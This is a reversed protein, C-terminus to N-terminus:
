NSTASGAGAGIETAQLTETEVQLQLFGASGSSSIRLTVREKSNGLLTVTTGSVSANSWPVIMSSRQQVRYTKGGVFYEAGSMVGGTPREYSYIMEVQSSSQSGSSLNAVSFAGYSTSTVRELTPNATQVAKVLDAATVVAGVTARLVEGGDQAVRETEAWYGSQNFALKYDTGLTIGNNAWILDFTQTSGYVPGTYTGVFMLNLIGNLTVAGSGVFIQDYLTETTGALDMTLNTLALDGAEYFYDGVVEDPDPGNGAQGVDNRGGFIVGQVGVALSSYGGGSVNYVNTVIPSPTPGYVAPSSSPSAYGLLLEGYANYGWSRLQGAGDIAFSSDTGASILRIGSLGPIPIPLKAYSTGSSQGTQGLTNRGFGLVSGDQKLILSHAYGAALSKAGSSIIQVPTRDAVAGLTRTNKGLQGSDNRGWVWVGGGEDVALNHDAGAAASVIKISPGPFVVEVLTGSSLTTAPQALQGYTNDGCAFVKGSATVILSHNGGAAVAVPTSSTSSPLVVPTFSTKSEGNVTGQGLQGFRDSGAAYVKEGALILSHTGGAALGTVTSGAPIGLVAMAWNVPSATDGVGLRGDTNLGWATVTTAGTALYLTHSFGSSILAQNVSLYVATSTVSGYSNSVTVTYSGSESPTLSTLELYSNSGGFVNQGDKEWRYTLGVGSALVEFRYSQGFEKTAGVPYTEIGPLPTSSGSTPSSGAEVEVGDSFEDEDTDDLNPDTGLAIEEYDLLGDGDQDIGFSADDLLNGSGGTPFFSTYSFRYTKGAEVSTAQSGSYRVWSTGTTVRRTFKNKAVSTEPGGSLEDIKFDMVDNGERGRHLFSYSVPSNVTMTVDQYLTGNANYNLEALTNGDNGSSGLFGSYWLEITYSNNATTRWGPVDNQPVALWNNSSPKVTGDEFSGNILRNFVTSVTPSTGYQVELKDNVGDSDTDALLPNTGYTIVEEGDKLGDNDTDPNSPNTGTNNASLYTGTRTEVQDALDDGDTDNSISLNDLVGTAGEIHFGLGNWNRPNTVGTAVANLGLNLNQLGSVSAFASNAVGLDRVFVSASGSGGNAAYDLVVRVRAYTLSNGTGSNGTTTAATGKSYFQWGNASGAFKVWWAMDTNSTSSNKIDATSFLGDENADLGMGFVMGWYAPQVDIEVITKGSGQQPFRYAANNLRTGSVGFNSGSRNYQVAKSGNSTWTIVQGDGGTGYVSTKWGDQGNLNGHSLSNFDYVATQKANPDMGWSIENVDSIGDGDTDITPDLVVNVTRIVQVAPNGAADTTNYTRTYNGVTATNVTGSGTITRSADVNDTVTAGPDSFTAGKYIQLPNAGILTIVPSQTDPHVITLGGIQNVLGWEASATAPYYGKAGAAIGGFPTPSGFTPPTNGLFNVSALKSCNLFANYQIENVSSPITISTLNTCTWFTGSMIKNLGSPLTISPLSTCFAFANPGISTVGDPITISQLSSCGDFVYGGISTLSNPLTIATMSSCGAFAADLITTVGNPIVVSTVSTKSQFANQGITTVAVGGITAPIVVDGGTGTYGTITQNTGNNTYTFPSPTTFSYESAGYGTGVSNAAFARYTYSTGPTLGTITNSFSGLAFSTGPASYKVGNTAPSNTNLYFGANTVTTGGLNMIGGMLNVSTPTLGSISNTPGTEVGPVSYSPATVVVQNTITGVAYTVLDTPVFTGVVANTGVSLSAGAAPSYTWTGPLLTPEMLTLHATATLESTSLVAPAVLNIPSPTWTLTPKLQALNPNTGAAVEAGDQTGDFDTDSNTPNTGTNSASVYTGTNTEVADSLGDGDSDLATLDASAVRFGYSNNGDIAPDVYYNRYSAPLYDSGIDWSGGRMELSEGVTNYVGDHATENWEWVNGGQGMTGYASLGGANNIDAPGTQGDYVATNPDTGGAVASPRSDSGTPYNYWTGNPSGYAGKYWEDRSAIVYKAQSNRFLNSANYGADTPSWPQLTGSVFKYAATGGTSTNLWNVFKAAEHLTVGTAPKNVGNGGYISMNYMTIGLGGATNAKDIQERSVEYKGLNYTYAVSGVPNPTGTTDAPNNPNGITVFDMTFQNTGSGFGRTTTQAYASALTTFSYENAGYGTGASNAAFARYTYSTGPALGTITNSFSGLAFSTGPASYKVGNTAPSNTNLYFGANTVTTGGLNTIGGMLNVSTQTLGSISNTPGTEVEPVSAVAALLLIQASTLATSSVSLEDLQGTWHLTGDRYDGGIVLDSNTYSVNKAATMTGAPTGDVYFTGTLENRVFAVHRWQGSNVSTPSVSAEVFGYGGRYDWFYLKGNSIGWIWEGENSSPTRGMTAIVENGLSTTKIWASLTLQNSSPNFGALPSTRGLITGASGQFASASAGNRGAVFGSSGSLPSITNVNGSEDLYLGNTFEYVASWSVGPLTLAKLSGSSSAFLMLATAVLRWPWGGM